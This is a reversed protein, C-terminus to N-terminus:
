YIKFIFLNSVEVIMMITTTTVIMTMTMTLPSGGGGGGGDNHDDDDGRNISRVHIKLIKLICVYMHITPVWFHKGM